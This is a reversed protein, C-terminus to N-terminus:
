LSVAIKAISATSVGGGLMEVIKFLADYSRVDTPPNRLEVARGLPGESRSANLEAWPIVKNAGSLAPTCAACLEREPREFFAVAFTIEM